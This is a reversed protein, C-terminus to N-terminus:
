KGATEAFTARERPAEGVKADPAELDLRRMDGDFAGRLRPAFPNQPDSSRMTMAHDPEVAYGERLDRLPDREVDVVGEVGDM